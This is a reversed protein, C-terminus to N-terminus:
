ESILELCQDWQPMALNFVRSIKETSLVSYAPRKVPTPYEASSIPVLRTVKQQEKQPDLELFRKAFHYWDTQGNAVLHYIGSCGQFYADKKKFLQQAILQATTEAITRSWTPCGIQDNVIRLEERERALRMITNYFNKGHKSYVWSTRLILHPIDTAQVAQEGALKSKGYVSIPNPNDTETYPTKKSGDFVYDTSYHIMAAGIKWAEKAIIGPATGNILMATDADSEVQDVATYAAANIIIDPKHTQIQQRILDVKTLDLENRGLASVHGLTSLTRRLEHGVQGNAGIILLRTM